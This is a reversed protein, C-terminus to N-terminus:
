SVIVDTVSKAKECYLTILKKGNFNSDVSIADIVGCKNLLSPNTIEIPITFVCTIGTFYRFLLQASLKQTLATSSTNYRHTYDTIITYSNGNVISDIATANNDFFNATYYEDPTNDGWRVAVSVPIGSLSVSNTNLTLVTADYMYSVPSVVSTSYPNSSLYVTINTM